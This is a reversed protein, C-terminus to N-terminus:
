PELWGRLRQEYGPGFGRNIHRIIGAADIVFTTPFRDQGWLRAATGDRDLVLKAGKPVTHTAYFAAVKEAAEGVDVIVLQRNITGNPGHVV